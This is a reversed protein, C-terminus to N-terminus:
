IFDDLDLDYEEFVSGVESEAPEADQASDTEWPDDLKEPPEVSFPDPEDFQEASEPGPQPSPDFEGASAVDGLASPDATAM